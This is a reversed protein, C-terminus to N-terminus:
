EMDGSGRTHKTNLYPLQMLTQHLGFHLNKAFLTSNNRNCRKNQKEEYWQNWLVNYTDLCVKKKNVQQQCKAKM